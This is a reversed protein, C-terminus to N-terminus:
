LKWWPKKQPEEPTRPDASSGYLPWIQDANFVVWQDYRQLESSIEDDGLVDLPDLVHHLYVGDYGERKWRPIWKNNLMSWDTWGSMRKIHKNLELQGLQKPNRIKLYAPRVNSGEKGVWSGRYLAYGSAAAPNNTFYAPFKEHHQFPEATGHYVVLPKGADDVVKSGSFWKQFEPNDMPDRQAECIIDIYRRLDM